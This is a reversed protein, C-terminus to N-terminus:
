RKADFLHHIAMIPHRYIMRPGAFRMVERIKERMAPKYCHVPCKACTTKNEGFPCKMLRELAYDLLEQCDDCIDQSEHNSNCFISVMAEVTKYERQIRRPLSVLHTNDM